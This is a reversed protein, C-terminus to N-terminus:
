VNKVYVKKTFNKLKSQPWHELQEPFVVSLKMERMMLPLCFCVFVNRSILDWNLLSRRRVKQQQVFEVHKRFAVSCILVHKAKTTMFCIFEIVHQYFYTVFIWNAYRITVFKTTVILNALNQNNELSLANLFGFVKKYGEKERHCPEFDLLLRWVTVGIM